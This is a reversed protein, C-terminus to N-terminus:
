NLYDEPDVTHTKLYNYFVECGSTSFNIGNTSNDSVLCGAEDAMASYMDIYYVENEIALAQILANYQVIRTNNYYASSADQNATVPAIGVLYIISDPCKAKIESILTQYDDSFVSSYSWGLELVGLEIYIKKPNAALSADLTAYSDSNTGCDYSMANSVSISSGYLLTGFNGVDFLKLCQVRTDGIILADSFYSDSVAAAEPVAATYDYYRPIKNVVVEETPLPGINALKARSVSKAISSIVSILIVLLILAAVGLFIMRRRRYKKKQVLTVHSAKKAPRPEDTDEFHYISRRLAEDGSQEEEPDTPPLESAADEDEHTEGAINEQAGDAPSAEPNENAESATEAGAAPNEAPIDAAPDSEVDFTFNNQENYENEMKNEKLHHFTQRIYVYSNYLM